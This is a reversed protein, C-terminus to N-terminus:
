NVRQALGRRIADATLARLQVRGQEALQGQQRGLESQQRGLTDQQRGLAAQQEGLTGADRPAISAERLGIRAQRAGLAAQREGLAAQREGLAAQRDGLLRQPEFIALARRLTEADRIVYAAGRERVYLLSAGGSRLARARALDHNSANMVSSSDGAGFLVYAGDDAPQVAAAAGAATAPIHTLVASGSLGALLALALTALKHAM